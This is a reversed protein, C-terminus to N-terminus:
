MHKITARFAENFDSRQDVLSDIISKHIQLSADTDELDM